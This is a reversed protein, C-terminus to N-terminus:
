GDILDGYLKITNINRFAGYALAHQWNFCATKWKKDEIVTKLKKCAFIVAVVNSNERKKNIKLFRCSLCSKGKHSM